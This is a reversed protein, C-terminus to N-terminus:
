INLDKIYTAVIRAQKPIKIVGRLVTKKTQITSVGSTLDFLTKFLSLVAQLYDGRGWLMAHSNVFAYQYKWASNESISRFDVKENLATMHHVISDLCYQGYGYFESIRLTYEVDDGWIFFERIPLGIKQVVATPILVSVFSCRRIELSNNAQSTPNFWQATFEPVNMKHLSQDGWFVRSAYFGYPRGLSDKSDFKAAKLLAHLSSNNPICDDDMLWVFDCKKELASEIGLAFGGAGGINELTNILTIPSQIRASIEGVAQCTLSDKSGGNNVVVIHDLGQDGLALLCDTLLEHRKYTVVVAVISIRSSDM